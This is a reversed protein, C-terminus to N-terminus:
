APSFRSSRFFYLLPHSGTSEFKEIGSWDDDVFGVIKYGLEPQEVIQRAFEMARENTGVILVFRHKEWPTAPGFSALSSGFTWGNRALASLGLLDFRFYANGDSHPIGYRICAPFSVRAVHGQM